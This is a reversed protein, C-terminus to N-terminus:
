CRAFTLTTTCNRHLALSTITKLRHVVNWASMCSCPWAKSAQKALLTVCDVPYGRLSAASGSPLEQRWRHKQLVHADPSLFPFQLMEDFRCAAAPPHDLALWKCPCCLSCWFHEQFIRCGGKMAVQSTCAMHEQILCKLIYRLQSIVM